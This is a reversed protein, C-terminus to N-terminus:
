TEGDLAGVTQDLADTIQDIETLGRDIQDFEWDMRSRWERRDDDSTWGNNEADGQIVVDVDPEDPDWPSTGLWPHPDPIM